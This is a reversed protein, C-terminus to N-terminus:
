SLDLNFTCTLHGVHLECQFAITEEPEYKRRSDVNKTMSDYVRQEQQAKLRQIRKELEPNREIVENEPLRLEAGAILDCLFTADGLEEKLKKVEPLTYSKSKDKKSAKEVKNENRQPKEVKTENLKILLELERESFEVPKSVSRPSSKSTSGKLKSPLSKSSILLQVEPNVIFSTSM